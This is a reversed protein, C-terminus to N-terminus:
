EFGQVSLAVGKRHKQRLPTLPLRIGPGTKNLHHLAWKVPIPNAECAQLRNFALLRDYTESAQEADNAAAAAALRACLAPAVNATVSIVGHGGALMYECATGDDGSLYRFDARSILKQQIRLRNVDGTADKVGAIREHESLLLLTNDALDTITRGPVNYLIVPKSSADAIATFHRLLGDQSPKNYYPVVSLCADAGDDCASRTLDIAETTSNAGTGAIVPIRGAALEVTKAILRRHEAFSLTPSEGTTGAAAIGATKAEVHWEVLRELCEWDIAGDEHMPTVLAVISGGFPNGAAM